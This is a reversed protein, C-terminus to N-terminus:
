RRPRFEPQDQELYRKLWERHDRLQLAWTHLASRNRAACAKRMEARRLDLARRGRDRNMPADSM